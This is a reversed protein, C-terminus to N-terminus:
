ASVKRRTHLARRLHVVGAYALLYLFTFPFLLLGLLLAVAGGDALGSRIVAMQYMGDLHGRDLFFYDANENVLFVKGRLRYALMWKWKTMIPEGSCLLGTVMHHRERLEAVLRKRGEPGPYNTVRYIEGQEARFASPQGAYCTILDLRMKEGHQEYLHELLKDALERSGSEVIAVRHFHPIRKSLFLRM